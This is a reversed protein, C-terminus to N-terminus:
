RLLSLWEPLQRLQPALGALWRRTDATGAHRNRFLRVASALDDLYWRLRYLALVDPDLARGAAEQYRGIDEGTTAILSVDREPPALAATDWDILVLRGAVSMVNAPHPEGHTIVPDARAAATVGALRDFGAALQGLDEARPALQGYAAESFPGGDWSRGPELLFARLDDQGGYRLVHQSARSRVAPTARHLAAIMDLALGRLRADPYPGFPHSRGALFPFVSVTFRDDLRHVLEGGRGAVPAM